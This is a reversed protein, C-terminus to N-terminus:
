TSIIKAIKLSIDVKSELVKTFDPQNVVKSIRKQEQQHIELKSNDIEIKLHPSSFQSCLETKIRLSSKYTGSITQLLLNLLVQKFKAPDAKVASPADSDHTVTLEINKKAIDNKAVEIVEDVAKKVWTDEEKFRFNAESVNYV